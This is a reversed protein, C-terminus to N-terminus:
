RTEQAHREPVILEVPLVISRTAPRDVQTMGRLLTSIAAGRASEGEVPRIHPYKRPIDAPAGSYNCVTVLLDEPARFDLTKEIELITNAVEWSRFITAIPESTSSLVQRVVSRVAEPDTPMSRVTLRPGHARSEHIIQEIGEIFLNDGPGWRSPMTVIIQRYGRSLVHQALLRGAQRQDIDICPLGSTESFVSGAVVVPVNVEEFFRQIEPSNSFIIIGRPLGDQDWAEVLEQCFHVEDRGPLFTYEISDYRFDDHLASVVSEVLPREARFIRASLLLHIRRPLLAERQAVHSGIFTGSGHRRDLVGREALEHMARNATMPSVGLSEGLGRASLYPDGPRLGRAQIDREIAMQLKTSKPSM